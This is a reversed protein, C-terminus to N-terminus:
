GGCAHDEVKTGQRWEERLRALEQPYQLLEGPVPVLVSSSLGATAGLGIGVCVLTGLRSCILCPPALPSFRYADFRHSRVLLNVTLGPSPCAYTM